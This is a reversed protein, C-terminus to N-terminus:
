KADEKPQTAALARKLERTVGCHRCNCGVSVYRDNLELYHRIATELRQKDAQLQDRERMLLIVHRLVDPCDDLNPTQFLVEKGTQNQQTACWPACSGDSSDDPECNCKVENSKNPTTM